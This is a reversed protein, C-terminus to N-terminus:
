CCGQHFCFEGIVILPPFERKQSSWAPSCFFLMCRVRGEGRNVSPFYSGTIVKSNVNGKHGPENMCMSNERMWFVCYLKKEWFVCRQGSCPLLTIQLTKYLMAWAQRDMLSGAEEGDRYLSRIKNRTWVRSNHFTLLAESWDMPFDPLPDEQFMTRPVHLLLLYSSVILM